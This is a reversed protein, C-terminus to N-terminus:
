GLGYPDRQLRGSPQLLRGLFDLHYTGRVRQGGSLVKGILLDCKPAVGVFGGNNKRAGVIGACHTGHGDEDDVSRSSTFDAKDVIADVLDPHDLDCGTDLIAVTVGKGQTKAWVTPIGLLFQGWNISDALPAVSRGGIATAIGPSTALERLESLSRVVRGVTHPPLRTSEDNTRDETAFGPKSAVTAKKPRPKTATSM